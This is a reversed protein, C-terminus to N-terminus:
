GEKEKEADLVEKEIIGDVLELGKYIDMEDRSEEDGTAEERTSIDDLTGLGEFIDIEDQLEEDRTAIDDSIELGEYIDMEDVEENKVEELELVDVDEDGVGKLINEVSEQAAMIDVQEEGVGKSIDTLLSKVTDMGLFLVNLVDKTLRMDGSRLKELIGELSHLFGGTKELGLYDASGKISHIARFVQNLMETDAPEDILGNLNAEFDALHEGSEIIFERLLEEDIM